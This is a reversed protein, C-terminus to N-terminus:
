PVRVSKEKQEVAALLSDFSDSFKELGEVELADSVQAQDIGIRGLGALQEHAAPIDEDIRVKPQGSTRYADFTERPITDVSSPAILAEVYYLPPLAPDKTSTSAWLPRQLAAGQEALRGFRTSGFVESFARYALRANAIGIKGRLQRALDHDGSGRTADNAIADLKKDIMTDVRSVFFSAVSRL